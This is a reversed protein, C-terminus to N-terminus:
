WWATMVVGNLRSTPGRLPSAPSRQLTPRAREVPIGNIAATAPETSSQLATESPIEFCWRRSVAILDDRKIGHLKIARAANSKVSFIRSTTM